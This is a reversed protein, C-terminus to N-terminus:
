VPAVDTGTNVFYGIHSWDPFYWTYPPSTDNGFTDEDLGLLGEWGKSMRDPNAQLAYLTAAYTTGNQYRRIGGSEFYEFSDSTAALPMVATYQLSTDAFTVLAVAGQGTDEATLGISATYTQLSPQSELTVESTTWLTINVGVNITLGSGNGLTFTTRDSGADYTATAVYLNDDSGQSPYSLRALAYQTQDGTVAVQGVGSAEVNLTAQSTAVLIKRNSASFDTTGYTEAAGLAPPPTQGNIDTHFDSATYAVPPNNETPPSVTEDYIRFNSVSYVEPTTEIFTRGAFGSGQTGTIVVDPQETYNSGGDVM